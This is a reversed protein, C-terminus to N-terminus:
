TWTPVVHQSKHAIQPNLTGDDRLAGSMGLFHSHQDQWIALGTPILMSYSLSIEPADPVRVLVWFSIGPVALRRSEPPSGIWRAVRAHM